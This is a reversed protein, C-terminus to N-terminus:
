CWVEGKKVMSDFQHLETLARLESILEDNVILTEM